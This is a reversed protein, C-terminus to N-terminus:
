AIRFKEPTEVFSVGDIKLELLTDKISDFFPQAEDPTANRKLQLFLVKDSTHKDYSLRCNPVACPVNDCAEQGIMGGHYKSAYDIHKPGITYPHPNHNVNMIDKCVFIDSENIKAVFEEKTM